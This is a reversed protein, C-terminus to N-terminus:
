KLVAMSKRPIVAMSKRSKAAASKYRDMKQEAADCPGGPGDQNLPKVRRWLCISGKADGSALVTDEVNIAVAIVASDHQTLREHKEDELNYIHVLDDEGGSVLYGGDSRSFCNQIPLSAQNVKVRQRVLLDSLTNSEDYRCDLLAIGSDSSSVFMFDSKPWTICTIGTKSLRFKQFGKHFSLTGDDAVLLVHLSGIKTGFM